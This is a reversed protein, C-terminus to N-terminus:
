GGYLLTGNTPVGEKWRAKTGPRADWVARKGMGVDVAGWAELEESEPDFRGGRSRATSFM